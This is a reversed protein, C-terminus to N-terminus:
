QQPRYAPYTGAENVIQSVRYQEAYRDLGGLAAYALAAYFVACASVIICLNRM